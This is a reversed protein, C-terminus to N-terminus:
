GEPPQALRVNDGIVWYPPEHCKPPLTNVLGEPLSYLEGGSVLIWDGFKLVTEQRNGTVIGTVITVQDGEITASADPPFVLTEEINADEYVMKLCGDEKALQGTFSALMFTAVVESTPTVTSTPVPSIVCASDILLLIMIIIFWLVGQIRRNFLIWIEDLSKLLLSLM